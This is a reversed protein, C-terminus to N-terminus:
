KKVSEILVEIKEDSWSLSVIVNENNNAAM